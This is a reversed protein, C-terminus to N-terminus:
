ICTPWMFDNAKPYWPVGSHIQICWFNNCTLSVHGTVEYIATVSMNSHGNYLGTSKAVITQLGNIGTELRFVILKISFSLHVPPTSTSYSILLVFCSQLTVSVPRAGAIQKEHERHISPKQKGICNMVGNIGCWKPFSIEPTTAFVAKVLLSVIHCTWM